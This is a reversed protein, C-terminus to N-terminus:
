EDLIKLKRILRLHWASNAHLGGLAIATTGIWLGYFSHIHILPIKNEERHQIKFSLGFPHMTLHSFVQSYKQAFCSVLHLFDTQSFKATISLIIHWRRSTKSASRSLM